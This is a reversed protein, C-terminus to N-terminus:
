RSKLRTLCNGASPHRKRQTCPNKLCNYTLWPAGRRLIKARVRKWNQVKLVRVLERAAVKARLLLQKLKLHKELKKFEVLWKLLM